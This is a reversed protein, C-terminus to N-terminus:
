NNFLPPSMFSLLESYLSKVPRNKLSKGYWINSRTIVPTTLNLGGAHSRLNGLCEIGDMEPMLHDMFIVDYRHKLDLMLAEKGSYAENVLLDLNEM